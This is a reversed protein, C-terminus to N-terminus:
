SGALLTLADKDAEPLAEFLTRATQGLVPHRWTPAIDCLPGLVFSRDQLRPHPLILQDPAREKQHDLSLTQWAAFTDVDPLILDSLAILDLDIVRPGWRTLRERGLSAEVRHLHAMLPGPEMDTEIEAVAN